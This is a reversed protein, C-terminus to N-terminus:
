DDDDFKIKKGQFATIQSQQEKRKRSAEWSPHLAQQSHQSSKFPKGPATKNSQTHQGDFAYKGTRAGPVNMQRPGSDKPGAASPRRHNGPGPSKFWSPKADGHPNKEKNQFRLPKSGCPKGKQSAGSSKSLTSCFVSQMKFQQSTNSVEKDKQEETAEPESKSKKGPASSKKKKLKNVKGLFFDDEESDESLSSQKHFREETSDDFYEKEKEDDSLELDSEEQSEKNESKQNEPKRDQKSPLAKKVPTEKSKAQLSQTTGVTSPTKPTKLKTVGQETLGAKTKATPTKEASSSVVRTANVDEVINSSKIVDLTQGMNENKNDKTEDDTIGTGVEEEMEKEEEEEEEDSSDEGHDKSDDAVTVEKDKKEGETKSREKELAERVAQLKKIFRPHTAIRAIAREMPSSESDQFVEEVNISGQLARTTVHDPLLHRLVQVEKQLRAVCDQNGKQESDEGKVKRVCAMQQTLKRIILMRLKKVEKRMRVVETPVKDTESSKTVPADKDQKAKENLEDRDAEQSPGDDGEQQKETTKRCETTDEDDESEEAREDDDGDDEESDQESMHQQQIDNKAEKQTKKAAGTREAKFIEVAKKISQIRRSFDPHTAIRATARESLSAEKDQCIKEFSFDKQLAAKTIVDPALVKLEKIEELLRAVRRQNRELDVEKGKRKKLTAIQRTLKRIIFVKVRKVVARMKVVENSLNLTSAAM